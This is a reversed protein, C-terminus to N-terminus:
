HHVDSKVLLPGTLDWILFPTPNPSPPPPYRDLSTGHRPPSYMSAVLNHSFVNGERLKTPLRYNGDEAKVQQVLTYFTRSRESQKREFRFCLRVLICELLIGCGYSDAPPPPPRSGLLPTGAGAPPPTDLCASLCVGGRNVSLCTYLSM